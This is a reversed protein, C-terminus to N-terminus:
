GILAPEEDIMADACSPQCLESFLLLGPYFNWQSTEEVLVPRRSGDVGLKFLGEDLKWQSIRDLGIIEPAAGAKRTMEIGDPRISLKETWKVSGDHQMVQALRRAVIESIESQFEQMERYKLTDYHVTSDYTLVSVGPEQSSLALRVQTYQYIGNRLVDTWKIRFGFMEDYRIAQVNGGCVREIGGDTQRLVVPKAFNLYVVLLAILTAAIVAGASALLLPEQSAKRFLAVAGVIGVGAIGGMAYQVWMRVDRFEKFNTAADACPEITM